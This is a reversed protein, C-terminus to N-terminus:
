AHPGWDVLAAVATGEVRGVLTARAQGRLREDSQDAPLRETVRLVWWAGDSGETPSVTRGVTVGALVAAWPQELDILLSDVTMVEVGADAAVEEVSDRDLDLRLWAERAAEADGLAVGHAVVRTWDHGMSRIFADVEEDSAAALRVPDPNSGDAALALDAALSRSWVSGYGAALLAPWLDDDSPAALGTLEPHRSGLALRRLARRLDKVSLGASSLWATYADATTLRRDRRLGVEALRVEAEVEPHASATGELVIGAALTGRLADLDGLQRGREVVEAWRVPREAVTFAIRDLPNGVGVGVPSDASTGM